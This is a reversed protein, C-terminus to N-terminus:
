FGDMHPMQVDLLILAFDHKLLQKLAEEGSAARVTHVRLPELISELALLNAPRDDVILVSPVAVDGSVSPPGSAGGGGAHSAGGGHAGVGAASAGGGGVSAAGAAP